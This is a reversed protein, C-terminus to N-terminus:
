SIGKLNTRTFIVQRECKGIGLWVSEAKIDRRVTQIAAPASHRFPGPGAAALRQPKGEHAGFAVGLCSSVWGPFVRLVNERAFIQSLPLPEVVPVDRMIDVDIAKRIQTRHAALTSPTFLAELDAGRAWLEFTKRLQHSELRTASARVNELPRHHQFRLKEMEAFYVQQALELSWISGRNLGHLELYKKSLKLEARINGTAEQCLRDWVGLHQEGIVARLQAQAHTRKDRLELRKDYFVWVAHSRPVELRAGVGQRLAAPRFEISTNQLIHECVQKVSIDEPLRFRHTIDLAEISFEGDKWAARQEDAYEIGLRDLVACILTSGLLCVNNTGFVNHGQLPKLPCCRINIASGNELSTVDVPSGYEHLRIKTSFRKSTPSTSNELLKLRENGFPKHQMSIVIDILDIMSM